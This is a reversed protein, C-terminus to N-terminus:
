VAGDRWFNPNKSEYMYMGKAKLFGSGKYNRIAKWPTPICTSIKQFKVVYLLIAHL